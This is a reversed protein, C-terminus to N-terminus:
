VTGKPELVAFRIKWRGEIWEPPDCDIPDFTISDLKKFVYQSPYWIPMYLFVKKGEAIWSAIEERFERIDKVVVTRAELPQSNYIAVPSTMFGTLVPQLYEGAHVPVWAHFEAAPITTESMVRAWEFLGVTTDTIKVTDVTNPAPKIEETM